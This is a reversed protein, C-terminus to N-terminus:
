KDEEAKKEPLLEVVSGNENIKADVIDIASKFENIVEDIPRTSDKSLLDNLFVKCALVLVELQYQAWVESGPAYIEVAPAKEQRDPRILKKPQNM